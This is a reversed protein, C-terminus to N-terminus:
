RSPPLATVAFRTFPGAKGSSPWTLRMGGDRDTRWVRVGSAALRELVGRPARQEHSYRGATIVAWRPAVGALWEEDACRGAGQDGLIVVPSAIDRSSAVLSREVARKGGGMFLVAAGERMLRLVLTGDDGRVYKEGKVPHLVEWMVGGALSGSDGRTLVRVPIAREDAVALIRRYVSSRGGLTSCWIEDVPMSALIDVAGGVHDADPHSLVLVDLRDVGRRRLQRIVHGSASAPGADVLMGGSGPVDVFAAHGQGVDLVDVRVARDLVPAGWLFLLLAVGGALGAQRVRRRGFVILALVLYWALLAYISPSAVFRHGFPVERMYEVARLLFGAFVCNAHNFIEALLPFSSGLVLALCGTLVVLFAGPVVVVNGLLAVPSVVNFYYATLPASVLWAAISVAMLEVVYRICSRAFRVVKHEQHSLVPDREVPCVLVRRIRPYLVLIGTVVSFSLIFGPELLQGPWLALIILASVALASPGDPRRRFVSAGWYVTGMLCARMASVKMGTGLTYVLLMPALCLVWDQRSLGALKLVIILLAAMVGVHLGSIAFIHLTGTTAFVERLRPPLARRHGLLLAHLLAAEDEFADLGRSLVRSAFARGRLCWRVFPKGCDDSLKRSARPSASMFFTSRGFEDTDKLVLGMWHWRQGYALRDRDPGYVCVRMRGRAKQWDRLRRVGEVDVKFLTRKGYEGDAPDEAIVGCIEVSQARRPLLHALARPSPSTVQTGALVWGLLACSVCLLPLSYDGKRLFIIPLLSLATVAIGWEVPMPLRFGAALGLM